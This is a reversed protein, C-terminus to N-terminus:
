SWKLASPTLQPAVVQGSSGKFIPAKPALHAPPPRPPQSQRTMVERSAAVMAWANSFSPACWSRFGTFALDMGIDRNDFVPSFFIGFLHDKSWNSENVKSFILYLSQPREGRGASAVACSNVDIPFELGASCALISSHNIAQLWCLHLLIQQTSLLLMGVAAPKDELELPGRSTLAKM